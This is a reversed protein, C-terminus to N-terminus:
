ILDLTTIQLLFLRLLIYSAKVLLRVRKFEFQEHTVETKVVKAKAVTTVVMALGYLVMQDSSSDVVELLM